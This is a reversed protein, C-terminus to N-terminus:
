VSKDLEKIINDMMVDTSVLTMGDQMIDPTRIGSALVSQISNDILDADDSMDFSYRLSMSFSLLFFAAALLSTKTDFYIKTLYVLSILSLFSIISSVFFINVGPTNFKEGGYNIISFLYSLGPVLIRTARHDTRHNSFGNEAIDRYIYADNNILKLDATELKINSYGASFFIHFVFVFFAAFILVKKLKMNNM